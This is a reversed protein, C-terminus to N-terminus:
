ADGAPSAPAGLPLSSPAEPFPEEVGPKEIVHKGPLNGAPSPLAPPLVQVTLDRPPNESLMSREHALM